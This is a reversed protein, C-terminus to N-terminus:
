ASWAAKLGALVAATRDHEATSRLQPSDARQHFVVEIVSTTNAIIYRWEFPTGSVAKAQEPGLNLPEKWIEADGQTAGKWSPLEERAGRADKIMVSLRESSGIVMTSFQQLNAAPGAAVLRAGEPSDTFSLNSVLRNLVSQRPAPGGFWTTAENHPGAWVLCSNSRDAAEYLVLDFGSRRFTEVRGGPFIKRPIVHRQGAPALDFNRVLAPGALRTHGHWPLEGAEPPLSIDVRAGDPAVRTIQSPNALVTM